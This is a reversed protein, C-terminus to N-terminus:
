LSSLAVLLFLSFFNDNNWTWFISHAVFMIWVYIFLIYIFFPCVWKDACSITKQKRHLLNRQVAFLANTKNHVTMWRDFSRYSNVLETWTRIFVVAIKWIHTGDICNFRWLSWETINSLQIWNFRICLFFSSANSILLSFSLIARMSFSVIFDRSQFEISTVCM